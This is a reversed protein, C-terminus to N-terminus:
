RCTRNRVHSGRCEGAGPGGTRWALDLYHRILNDIQCQQRLLGDAAPGLTGAYRRLVFPGQVIPRQEARQCRWMACSRRQVSINMRAQRDELRSLERGCGDRRFRPAAAVGLCALWAVTSANGSRHFTWTMANLGRTTNSTTPMFGVPLLLEFGDIRHGLTRDTRILRRHHRPASYSCACHFFSPERYTPPGGFPTSIIDFGPRGGLLGPEEPDADIPAHRWPWPCARMLRIAIVQIGTAAM